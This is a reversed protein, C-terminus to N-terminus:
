ARPHAKEYVEKLREVTVHTYIQTTSLSAHGLMEQVSRLDAGADLLHTAFSHRLAHPTMAPNLGAIRLYKKMLREVSRPTLPGAHKNLFIAPPRGGRGHVSWFDTRLGMARELADIAPGGLACLREKKGKGRVRIMGGLLDIQDDRLGTLEALRMGTSYFVELIAVDRAQAYASWVTDQEDAEISGALPAELLRKVEDVSMVKPLRRPKKPLSVGAFPSLKVREERRLFKFFSRLSSLKRRTTTAACGSKQFHVLFHRAAFRDVEIWPYPPRAEAGWQIAVFQRLDMLYNVITHTSANREATLYDAFDQMFRDIAITSPAPESPQTM